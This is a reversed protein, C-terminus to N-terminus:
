SARMVFRWYLIVLIVQLLVVAIFVAKFKLKKTKHHFVVQGLLAGLSGGALAAVHLVLEPVRGGAAIAQRKDYGYLIMTAINIGILYAYLVYLGAWCLLGTLVAVLVLAVILFTKKPNRKPM